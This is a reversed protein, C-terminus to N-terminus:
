EEGALPTVEINRFAAAGEKGQLYLPGTPHEDVTLGGLTNDELEVNEHIVEGDVSVEVLEFNATKEGDENFRPARYEIVFRHWQGPGKFAYSAPAAMRAVAGFDMKGPASPDDPESDIVQIEYEGMVYIGSNSGEPIMVELEIRADGFERETYIDNGFRTNVLDDGGEAAVLQSPNEPDVQAEGIEWFTLDERGEFAWGELSAGDFPRVVAESAGGGDGGANAGAQQAEETGGDCGVLGVGVAMVVAVLVPVSASDILRRM